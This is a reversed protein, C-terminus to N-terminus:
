VNEIKSALEIDKETVGNEEHTWLELDVLNYEITITPHHEAKVIEKSIRNVFDLAEQYNKFEYTKGILLLNEQTDEYIDWNLGYQNLASKIAAKDM